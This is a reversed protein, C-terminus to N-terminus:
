PQVPRILLGNCRESMYECPTDSSITVGSAHRKETTQSNYNYLSSSWYDGSKVNTEGPLFITNGNTGSKKSTIMYGKKTSGKYKTTTGNCWTWTYETTNNKTNLLEEFESFTPMRWIGDWNSGWNTYAADDALDLTSKGDTTNYKTFSEGDNWKYTPWSFSGKSTTEGWAFESGYDTESNAGVNMNAWKVSLGLDVAQASAPLSINGGIGAQKVYVTISTSCANYNDTAAVSATIIAKGIGDPTIAGTNADVIATSGDSSSYTPTGWTATASCSAPTSSGLTLVIAETNSFAVTNNTAPTITFTSTATSSYNGMGNITVTYDGANIRGEPLTVAYDKDEELTTEGDKVIVVPTLQSGTYSQSAISINLDNVSKGLPITTIYYRNHALAVTKTTTYTINGVTVEFNYTRAPITTGNAETNNMAVFISSAASTPIITLPSGTLNDATIKLQSVNVPNGNHTFNFKTIAQNHKFKAESTSLINNGGNFDAPDGVSWVTVTATAYDFNASIDAVTGKQGSYTSHSAKDKLYYLTLQDEYAFGGAVALEGVLTTSATGVTSPTLEGVSTNGKYVYVKEGEGWTANLAYGDETLARTLNDGSKDAPISVKYTVVPAEKKFINLSEIGLDNSCGTQVAAVVLAAALVLLNRTTKM